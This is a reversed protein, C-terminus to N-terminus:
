ISYSTLGNVWAMSVRNQLMWDVLEKWDLLFSFYKDNSIDANAIHVPLRSLWEVDSMSNNCTVKCMGSAFVKQLCLTAQSPAQPLADSSSFSKSEPM